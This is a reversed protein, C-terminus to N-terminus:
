IFIVKTKMNEIVVLKEPELYYTGNRYSSMGYIVIDLGKVSVSLSTSTPKLKIVSTFAIKKSGDSLIVPASLLRGKILQSIYAKKGAPLINLIWSKPHKEYEPVSAGQGESFRKGRKRLVDKIKKQDEVSIDLARAIMVLYRYEVVDLLGDSISIEWLSVLVQIREKYSLLSKIGGTIESISNITLLEEKATKFLETADNKNIDFYKAFAREYLSMEERMVLGDASVIFYYLLSLPKRLENSLSM